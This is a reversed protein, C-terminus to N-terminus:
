MTLASFNSAGRAASVMFVEALPNKEREPLEASESPSPMDSASSGKAPVSGYGAETKLLSAVVM